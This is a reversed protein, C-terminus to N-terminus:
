PQITKLIAESAGKNEQVFDKCRKSSKELETPSNLWFALSENFEDTNQIVKAANLAILDAAEKFREHKPGFLVPLGFAVPELINHIGAAFGGGVIALDAYRYLRSLMGINDIILVEAQELQEINTNSYRECTKFTFLSEIKEIHGKDINHPAIIFKWGSLSFRKLYDSLFAEEKLYSSGLILINSEQKFSEILPFSIESNANAFVRDFRTDGSVVVETIGNNRLVEASEENQVFFRDILYLTSKFWGMGGKFFYHNERFVASISYITVERAKSERILNHWFEYKVLMLYDPQIADLIRSANKSTDVPIYNVHDALGYDKMQEYGSPSFFTIVIQAEDERKLAEILPRAQEFEGLSAAHFWYTKRTNDPTFEKLKSFLMKRGQIWLRAKKNGFWSAVLVSFAYLRVSFTYLTKM